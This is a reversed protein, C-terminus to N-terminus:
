GREFFLLDQVLQPLSVLEGMLRGALLPHLQFANLFRRAPDCLELTRNGRQSVDIQIRNLLKLADVLSIGVEGVLTVVHLLGLLLQLSDNGIDRALHLGDKGPLKLDDVLRELLGEQLEKAAALGGQLQLILLIEEVASNLDFNLRRALGQLDDAKQRAALLGKHCYREIKGNQLHTRSGETNHILDLSGQVVGVDAAKGAVEALHRVLRLKDDNGVAAAGHLFGVDEVTDGHLLM